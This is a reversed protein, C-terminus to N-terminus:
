PTKAGDLRVDPETNVKAEVDKWIKRLEEATLNTRGNLEANWLDVLDKRNYRSPVLRTMLPDNVDTLGLQKLLEAKASPSNNLM